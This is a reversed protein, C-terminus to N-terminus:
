LSRPSTAGRASVTRSAQPLPPNGAGRSTDRYLLALPVGMALLLLSFNYYTLATILAIILELNLLALATQGFVGLSGTVQRTTLAGGLLGFGFIVVFMGVLGFDHRLAVFWTYINTSSEPKNPNLWVVNTFVGFQRTHGEAVLDRVGAISMGWRPDVDIAAKGDLVLSYASPPGLIAYGTVSAADSTGKSRIETVLRFTFLLVFLAGSVAALTRWDIKRLRSPHGAAFVAIALLMSIIIPLKTSFVVSQAFVILLYAGVLLVPRKRQRAELAVYFVGCYTLAQLARM